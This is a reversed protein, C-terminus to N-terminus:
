APARAVWAGIQVRSRFGLKNRIHEVHGEATREGITLREAIQANTLGEAVLAAVEWERRSLVSRRKIEQPAAAAAAAERPFPLLRAKAWSRLQRLYWTAKARRWYPVVAAFAAAAATRDGPADRRLLLDASELRVATLGVPDDGEVLAAAANALLGLAGDLDGARATARAQAFARSATLALPEPGRVPPTMVETWLSIAATDGLDEAALLALMGVPAIPTWAPWRTGLIAPDHVLTALADAFTAAQELTAPMDGAIWFVAASSAACFANQQLGSALLRRRADLASVLFAPPGERTAHIFALVLMPHDRWVTDGQEAILGPVDDWNGDAFAKDIENSIWIPYRLGHRRAHRVAADYVALRRQRPAGVGWLAYLLANYASLAHVALGHELALALAERLLAVGREVDTHLSTAVQLTALVVADTAGSSRGVALAREANELGEAHRGQHACMWARTFYAAALEPCDGLPEALRVAEAALRAAEPLNELNLQVRAMRTLAGVTGRDDAFSSYLDRAANAAELARRQDTSFLAAQALRVQLSALTRSDAPALACARELHRAATTDAFLRMAEDAAIEHYRFAQDREGAEDFHYALADAALATRDGARRELATAVSRHMERRQRQLLGALVAERTLAHRFAFHEDGTATVEEVILQADISRALADLIVAEPLGCVEQLLGFEYRRGIVAAVQLMRLADTPLANVRQDVASRLSEPIALDRVEKDREWSGARYVLGGSQSLSKLVEELFFPNGECVEDLARCFEPAPPGAQGLAAHVMRGTEEASLRGLVLRAAHPMREIEHIVPRLPHLRSLEDSRYTALLLVRQGGLKRALYPVLELTAPDGWHLDEIAIAIPTARALDAFFAAFSEHTRYRDDEGVTPVSDRASSWEPLFRVLERAGEGLSQEVAARPLGAIAARLVDVFPGFPRTAETESCEGVFVRAGDSRARALFVRLLASKGIGADGGVLVVRQNGAAAGAFAADLSGLEHERGIFEGAVLRGPKPRATVKSPRGVKVM